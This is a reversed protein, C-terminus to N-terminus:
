VKYVMRKKVVDPEVNETTRPNSPFVRSSLTPCPCSAHTARPSVNSPQERSATPHCVAYHFRYFHPQIFVRIVTKVRLVSAAAAEIEQVGWFPKEFWWYSSMMRSHRGGFYLLVRWVWKSVSSQLRASMRRIM